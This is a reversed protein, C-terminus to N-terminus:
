IQLIARSAKGSNKDSNLFQETRKSHVVCYKKLLEHFRTDALIGRHGAGQLEDVTLEELHPRWTKCHALNWYPVTGDGSCPIEIAGGKENVTTQMTDKTEKVTGDEIELHEWNWPSSGNKDTSDLQCEKDLVYRSDAEDDGVVIVPRHRYVACVETPLNIGYIANVRKVPPHDMTRPGVPDEEYYERVVDDIKIFGEMGFLQHGSLADYQVTDQNTHVIPIQDTPTEIAAIPTDTDNPSMSDASQYKLKLQFTTSKSFLKHRSKKLSVEVTKRQNEDFDCPHLLYPSSVGVHVGTGFTKCFERSMSSIQKKIRRIPKTVKKMLRGGRKIIKGGPEELFCSLECFVQDDNVNPLAFYFTEQVKL